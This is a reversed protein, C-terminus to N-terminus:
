RVLYYHAIAALLWIIIPDILAGFRFSFTYFERELTITPDVLSNSKDTVLAVLLVLGASLWFTMHPAGNFNGPIFWNWITMFVIMRLLYCVLLMMYVVFEMKRKM